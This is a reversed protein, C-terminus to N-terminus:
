PFYRYIDKRHLLRVFVVTDGELVLGIRYDGTRIRYYRESGRLKKFNAIDSPTEATEVQEIIEKVRRRIAADRVRELDKLFSEKFEVKM